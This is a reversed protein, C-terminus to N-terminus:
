DMSHYCLPSSPRGRNHYWDYHSHKGDPRLQAAFVYPSVSGLASVLRQAQALSTFWHQNLCEDRFKGKFSELLGNQTTKGLNIFDFHVGKAYAWANLGQGRVGARQRCLDYAARGATLRDLMWAVRLGPLPADVEITLCDRM